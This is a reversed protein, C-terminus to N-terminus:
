RDEPTLLQAPVVVPRLRPWLGEAFPHLDRTVRWLLPAPLWRVATYRRLARSAHGSSRVKRWVVAPSRAWSNHWIAQDARLTTRRHEGDVPPRAIQLSQRDGSVVLRLFPGDVRRAEVPTAGARILVPGPYDHHVGGDRNAVALVKGGPMRRYLVAMPWEVADVGLEEALPVCDLLAAPDPLVEDNDLQVVWDVDTLADMAARRQATDARLPADPTAWRGPVIRLLGRHDVERVIRLCEQVPIPRGTWGLGDTPVPVVLADLRDYYRTLSSRLWTPDGPLIYAGLKTTM